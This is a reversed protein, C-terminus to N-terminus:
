CLLGDYITTISGFSVQLLRRIESDVLETTNVSTHTNTPVTTGYLTPVMEEDFVRVGVKESMGYKKVMATAISTAQEFDNSAGLITFFFNNKWYYYLHIIIYSTIMPYM